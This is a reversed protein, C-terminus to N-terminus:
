PPPLSPLYFSSCFLFSHPPSPFLIFFLFLSLLSHFFNPPTTPLPPPTPPSPKCRGEGRINHTEEAEVKKTPHPLLTPNVWQMPSSDPSSPPISRLPLVLPLVLLFFLFLHLKSFSSSLSVPCALFPLIILRM